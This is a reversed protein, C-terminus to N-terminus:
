LIIVENLLRLYNEIMEKTLPTKKREEIDEEDEEDLTKPILYGWERLVENSDENYLVMGSISYNLKPDPPFTYARMELSKAKECWMQQDSTSLDYFQQREKEALILTVQQSYGHIFEQVALEYIFRAAPEIGVVQMRNKGVKVLYKKHAIRHVFFHPYTGEPTLTMILRKPVHKDCDAPLEGERILDSVSEGNQELITASLNALSEM